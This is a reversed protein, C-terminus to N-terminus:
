RPIVDQAIPIPKYTHVVQQIAREMGIIVEVLQSHRHVLTAIILLFTKQTSRIAAQRVLLHIQQLAM